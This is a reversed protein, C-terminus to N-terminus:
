CNSYEVAIGQFEQNIGMMPFIELKNVNNICIDKNELYSIIADNVEVMNLELKTKM